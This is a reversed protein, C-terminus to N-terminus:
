VSRKMIPARDRALLAVATIRRIRAHIDSPQFQGALARRPARDTFHIPQISRAPLWWFSTRSLRCINLHLIRSFIPEPRLRASSNNKTKKRKLAYDANRIIM